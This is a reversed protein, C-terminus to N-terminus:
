SGGTRVEEPESPAGNSETAEEIECATGEYNSPVPENQAVIEEGGNEEGVLPTEVIVEAEGPGENQAEDELIYKLAISELDSEEAWCVNGRGGNFLLLLAPVIFWVFGKQIGRCWEATKM